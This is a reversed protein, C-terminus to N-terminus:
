YECGENVSFSFTNVARQGWKKKGIENSQSKLQSTEKDGSKEM